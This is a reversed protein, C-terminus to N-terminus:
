FIGRLYIHSILEKVVLGNKKVTHLHAQIHICYRLQSTMDLNDDFKQFKLISRFLFDAVNDNKGQKFNSAAVTTGM